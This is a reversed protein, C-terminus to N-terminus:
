QDRRRRRTFLLLGLGLALVVVGAVVMDTVATVGTSALGGGSAQPAPVPAPTPPPAPTSVTVTVTVPDASVTEGSPTVGTAGATATVKGSGEYTAECTMQEGPALTRPACTLEAPTLTARVNTLTVNGTNTTTVKYTLKSGQASVENKVTLGPEQTLETMASSPESRVEEGWPTTGKAAAVTMVFGRDLDAQTIEHTGGCDLSEGPALVEAECDMTTVNRLTVTGTNTAVVTYTVVKGDTDARTTVTLEPTSSVETSATVPTSAAAGSPATGQATASLTVPANADVEAQTVVHTATCTTSEGAALSTVLCTFGDIGVANLTVTGDNTLDVTYRLEDGADTLGSEDTDAVVTTVAASLTAVVPIVTTAEVPASTVPGTVSTGTATATHTVTGNDADAPTLTYTGSCTQVEDPALTEPECSLFPLATVVGSVNVTGTNTAGITYHVVDGSDVRGDEDADEVSTVTNTVALAAVQTMPTAAHATPAQVPKGDPTTASANASATVTGNEMDEATIVHTSVCTVSEGIILVPQSCGGTVAVAHLVAGGTNTATATYRVVDGRDTRGDADTDTVAADLTLTMGPVPNLKTTRSATATLATGGASTGTAVSTITFGRATVDATTLTHTATCTLSSGPALAGPVPCTLPLAASGLRTSV